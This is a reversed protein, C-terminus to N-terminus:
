FNGWFMYALFGIIIVVCWGKIMGWIASDIKSGLM